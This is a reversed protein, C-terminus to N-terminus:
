SSGGIIKANLSFVITERFHVVTVLFLLLSLPSISIIEGRGVGEGGDM